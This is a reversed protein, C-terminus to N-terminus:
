SKFFAFLVALVGAWFVFMWRIVRTELAAMRQTLRTELDAMRQTLRTELDAMARTLHTELNGMARWLKGTEEALRREFRTELGRLEEALRRSFREEALTVVQDRTDRGAQNLLEVLAQAGQPGLKERLIEPLNIVPM